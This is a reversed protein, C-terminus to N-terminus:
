RIEILYGLSRLMGRVAPTDTLQVSKNIRGLGLAVLGQRVRENRGIHSRVQTVHLTVGTNKKEGSAKAM